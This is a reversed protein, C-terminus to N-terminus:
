GPAASASDNAASEPNVSRIFAIIKWMDDNSKVIEGFPPMPGVVNESGKRSYGQEKLGDSGLAILRFLTDDDKGYIWVQNTLPPGMGGGGMGHCGNCGASLYKKRGEEAVSEFDGAYPSKLTGKEATKATELPNGGEAAPAAGEADADEGAAAGNNQGAAGNDQDKNAADADGAADSKDPAAAVQTGQDAEAKDGSAQPPTASAAPPAATTAAEDTRDAVLLAWIALAVGALVLVGILIRGM